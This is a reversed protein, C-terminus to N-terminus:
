YPLNPCSAAHNASWGRTVCGCHECRLTPGVSPAAKAVDYWTGNRFDTTGGQVADSEAGTMQRGPCKTPMSAEAGGCVKCHALGDERDFLKHTGARVKSRDPLQDDNKGKTKVASVGNTPM